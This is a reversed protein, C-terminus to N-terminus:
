RLEKKQLKQDMKQSMNKICIQDLNAQNKIWKQDVTNAKQIVLGLDEKMKIPWNQM